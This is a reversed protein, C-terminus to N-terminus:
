PRDTRSETVVSNNVPDSQIWHRNKCCLCKISNLQKLTTLRNKHFKIMKLPFRYFWNSTNTSGPMKSTKEPGNITRRIVSPLVALKIEMKGNTSLALFPFSFKVQTVVSYFCGQQVKKTTLYQDFHINAYLIINSNWDHIM